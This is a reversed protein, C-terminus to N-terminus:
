NIFGWFFGFKLLLGSSPYYPAVYNNNYFGFGMPSLTMSNINEARVYATFSRIRLHLYFNIDPLHQRITTDSQSYFQGNLPAYGDAKYGSIYRIETGFSINLNKFGLHGDYGIQNSSALLPVHVPSSGAVQQVVTNTRWHWHRYLTFQKQVSVQLLNFLSSAQREKYFDQFYSYNSMLYYSGKIRLNREPQDLSAFINTTNERQFSASTGNLYFSSAQNFVYSPSRNVNQFGGTFYGIEKSIYRQLSIHADYDGANAGTIYFKGYAEIDWKQNRTKNRYEGHVYENSLDTRQKVLITSGLQLFATDFAGQLLEFAIGAKFFQQPNKSDPFQYISFDNILQHWRDRRYFTDTEGVYNLGYKQYYTTDLYYPISPNYDDSFSYQYTTYTITHELRLRPYFLPIVTTDTVISDKQGLDYQQRMLITNTSYRTGTTITPAFINSSARLLGSGLWTPLTAQNSYSISDLNHYDTVGGNDSAALKSGVFVFFNQYRKNKSQYWSSLRYNNHNTNQNQFAGVANILRYEFAFNWNPRINQTHTVDIIQEQKSGLLYGLETYPKTTNYFRTEAINFVYRDYAHLGMDWGSIMRPSFVLEKAPTGINGLNIWLNPGPEQVKRSFDLVSSDLKQYRSSDLFRFNLTITDAKRHELSDGKGGSGGGGMNGFRSLASQAWLGTSCLLLIWGIAIIRLSKVSLNIGSLNSM